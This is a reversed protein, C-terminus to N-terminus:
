DRIRVSQRGASITWLRPSEVFLAFRHELSLVQGITTRFGAYKQAFLLIFLIGIYLRVSVAFM